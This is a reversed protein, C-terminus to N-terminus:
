NSAAVLGKWTANRCYVLATESQTPTCVTTSADKITLVEAADATNEILIAQGDLDKSAPPLTVDRGSGGPDFAFISYKSLEAATITRNDALAETLLVKGSLLGFFKLSM